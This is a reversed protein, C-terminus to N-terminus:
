IHGKPEVDGYLKELSWTQSATSNYLKIGAYIGRMRPRSKNQKGVTSWTGSTFASASDKIDELATEADKAPYLAWTVADSDTFDGSSAGGSLIGSFERLLGYTFEDQSLQQIITMYSSIASTSATTADNKTSNDFERIYGDQCGVLFKKYTTNTAPYYFASYVGCSAPYSEPFFGNTFLSYFYGTNASGDLASKCILIGNDVPDFAMTIRHSAKDLALDSILNPLRTKSINVPPSSTEGVPIRYIGDSGLFYLNNQNDICWARSGWIGTNNTVRALQGSALPDGILIWVSNACGFIILDDKYPILATIIDGVQGVLNNAYTVASLDGDNSYDYLVKWPIGVKTMQWATPYNSDGAIVIRGRYTCILTPQTLITGYTSTDQAYVTWAYWHPASVEAASAVFSVANGADNTGTITEGSQFNANSSTKFGYVNTAGSSQDIYDVVMTATSTGGTLTNGIDPLNAGINTTAVKINIYDLVYKNTGNVVFLKQFAETAETPLFTNITGNAATLESMTGASSEYWVEQNGMAVLRRTYTKDTVVTEIGWAEFMCDQAQEGSWTGGSNISYNLAGGTYTPSSADVRWRLGAAASYVVIAYKTSNSLPYNTSFVFEKWEGSTSTTFTDGDLTTSVLASGTPDSSSTRYIGVTCTGPTGVRYLKLKVSYISYGETTTWTQAYWTTDTIARLDDDGTNYYERITAM